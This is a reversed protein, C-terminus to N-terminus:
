ELRSIMFGILDKMPTEPNEEIIRRYVAVAQTKQGALGLSRAEGFQARSKMEPGAFEAAEKYSAAAAAFEGKAELSSAVGNRLLYALVGDKKGVRIGARFREISKDFDGRHFALCGLYYQAQAGAQTRSYKEAVSELSAEVASPPGVLAPAALTQRVADLSASLELGAKSEQWQFYARTGLTLVMAAVLLLVALTVKSRNEGCWQIVRGFTTLFEDPEKLDRRTYKIKEAM